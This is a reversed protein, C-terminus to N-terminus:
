CLNFIIIAFRESIYAIIKGKMDRGLDSDEESDKCLEQIHTILPLVSSVTVTEDASLIDTLINFPSLVGVITDIVELDQWTLVLHRHSKFEDVLAFMLRCKCKVVTSGM